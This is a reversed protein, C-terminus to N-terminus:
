RPPALYTGHVFRGAEVELVWVSGKAWKLKGEYALGDEALRPIVESIVEQHSCHAVHRRATALLFGIAAAVDVPDQDLVDDTEVALGLKDALPEVTQTCRDRPSSVVREIGRDGLLDILGQAQRRGARSLPRRADPGEWARKDGALAHRVLYVTM